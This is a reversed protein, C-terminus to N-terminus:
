EDYDDYTGVSNPHISQPFQTPIPQPIPPFQPRALSIHQILLIFPQNIFLIQTFLPITFLCQQYYSFIFFVINMIRSVTEM